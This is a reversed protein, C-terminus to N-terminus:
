MRYKALKSLNLLRSEQLMFNLRCSKKSFFTEFPLLKKFSKELMDNELDTCNKCDKSTLLMHVPKGKQLRAM